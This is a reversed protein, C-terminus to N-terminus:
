KQRYLFVWFIEDYGQPDHARRRPSRSRTRITTSNRTKGDRRVYSFKVGYGYCRDAARVVCVYTVVLWYKLLCNREVQKEKEKKDSSTTSFSYKVQAFNKAVLRKTIVIVYERDSIKVTSITYGYQARTRPVYNRRTVEHITFFFNRWISCRVRLANVSTSFSHLKNNVHELTHIIHLCTTFNLSRQRRLGGLLLTLARPQRHVIPFVSKAGTEERGGRVAVSTERRGRDFARGINNMPNSSGRTM